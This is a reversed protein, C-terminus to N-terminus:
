EVAGDLAPMGPTRDIAADDARGAARQEAQETEDRAHWHALQEARAQQDAHEDAARRDAIERMARQTRALTDATEAASPVRVVDEDTLTPENAAVDRVDAVDTEVVGPERGDVEGADAGRAPFERDVNRADADFATPETAPVLDTEATIERHPDEVRM